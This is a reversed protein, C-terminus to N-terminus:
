GPGRKRRVVLEYKKHLELKDFLSKVTRCGKGEEKVLALLFLAARPGTIVVDKKVDRQIAKLDLEDIEAM